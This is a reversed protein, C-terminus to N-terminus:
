GFVWRVFNKIWNWLKQWFSLEKVPSVDIVEDGTKKTAFQDLYIKDDDSNSIFITPKKNNGNGSSSSSIDVIFSITATGINGALDEGYFTVTHSGEAVNANLNEWSTSNVQSLLTMSGGDLFYWANILSESSIIAFDISNSNYTRNEPSVATIVPVSTDVSFTITSSIGVNGAIDRGYFIITHSGQAANIAGIWTISNSSSLNVSAGNDLSYWAASLSESSTMSLFINSYTYRFNNVPSIVSITPATTDPVSTDVSFTIAASRGMNGAVDRGYFTITHSGQAMTVARQWNTSDTSSLSVNAGGDLSYWAANLAENSTMRLVFSTTTYVQGNVPSISIITPATTDPISTNITFSVAATGVNGAIDRAYFAINYNGNAFVVDKEFSNAGVPALEVETANGSIVYWARSVIENTSISLRITNTNYTAGNSPNSITIFPATTDGAQNTDKVTLSFSQTVFGNGDSVRATLGYTYDSTVSPAVGSILGSSSISIWAPSQTLSYSISDGDADTAVIQYSYSQSENIETLPSSTIVPLSNGADTPIVELYLEDTSTQGSAATVVSRITYNGSDSYAAKGIMMHKSYSDSTTYANLLNAIVAGSSDLLDVNVTMSGEFISDASVIVGTSEGDNISISNATTDDYFLSTTVSGASVIAIAFIAMFFFTLIKATKM